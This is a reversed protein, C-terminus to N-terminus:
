YISHSLNNGIKEDAEHKLVWWRLRHSPSTQVVGARHPWPGRGAEEVQGLFLGQGLSLGFLPIEEAKGFVDNGQHGELAWCFNLAQFLPAQFHEASSCSFVRLPSECLWWLGTKPARKKWENSHCVLCLGETTQVDHGVVAVSTEKWKFGHLLLYTSCNLQTRSLRPGGQTAAPFSNARDKVVMMNAWDQLLLAWPLTKGGEAWGCSAWAQHAHGPRAGSAARSGAAWSLQSCLEPARVEHSFACSM